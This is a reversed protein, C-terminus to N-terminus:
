WLPRLYLFFPSRIAQQMWALQRAQEPVSAVPHQQFLSYGKLVARRCHRYVGEYLLSSLAQTVKAISTKGAQKFGHKHKPATM